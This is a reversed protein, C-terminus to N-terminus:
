TAITQYRQAPTIAGSATNISAVAVGIVNGTIFSGFIANWNDSIDVAVAAAVAPYAGIFRFASTPPTRGPSLPGTAFVYYEAGAVVVQAATTINLHGPTGSAATFGTTAALAPVSTDAPPDTITPEGVQSLRQNLKTLWALGSVIISSGLVNVLPNAQAFFTWASRQADTLTGSWAKANAGFNARVLTQAPTNRNVPAVRARTYAGGLNRSFVTGGVSGRIDTAVIGLKM